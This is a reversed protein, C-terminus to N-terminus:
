LLKFNFAFSLLYTTLKTRCFFWLTDKLLHHLQYLHTPNSVSSDLLLSTYLSARWTVHHMRSFWREM